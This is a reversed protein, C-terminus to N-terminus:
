MGRRRWLSPNETWRGRLRSQRASLSRCSCQSRLFNGAILFFGGGATAYDQELVLDTEPEVARQMSSPSADAALGADIGIALAERRVQEARDTKVSRFEGAPKGIHEVSVREPFEEPSENRLIAAPLDEQDDIVRRKVIERGLPLRPQSFVLPADLQEPQRRVRGLEIRNFAHPFRRALHRCVVAEVRRCLLAVGRQAGREGLELPPRTQDSTM